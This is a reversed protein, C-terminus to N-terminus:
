RTLRELIQRAEAFYGKLRPIVSGAYGADLRKENMGLAALLEAAAARRAVPDTSGKTGIWLPATHAFTYEGMAPWATTTPGVVRAAVWGGAPVRVKGTYTAKGSAAPKAGSWVTKGNVVLAVSDIPVASAVSLTFPLERSSAIVDGPQMGDVTLQLMPGNTVFSRGAKLAAFYNPWNFPGDPRVYVRTAGVAMTRHFDAMVDTGGSPAVPFGANLLRYWLEASGVSNSWLCVIELLDINGHVGDAILAVPLVNMGAATFPTRTGSVPHVYYGAGGQARGFAIPEANTRDDRGYTEYGPGWVWPWFLTNTGLLGVHGLFHSRVEQAWTVLPGDGLSKWDFLPQDEFRNHLNALMPTAVDLDEGQLLPALDGPALAFQGGYNLHFHHDASYWGARQAEWLPQLALSATATEGPRVTVTASVEPTALGRVARVTVPGAPVDLTITGSSYFYVRGNQGDFRPMGENPVLPHGDGDVVSLRAASRGNGDAGRNTAPACAACRTEIVLRGMPVGADWARVPVERVPGGVTPVRYLHPLQKADSEAFYVWDGGNSFSPVIPRGGPRSVLAISPGPREVSMLRLEWGTPSPWTFALLKGDPSLAPRTQSVINGQLLVTEKGDALTRLRVQDGGGRSKSLYILGKGDPTLQPRLEAGAESTLRTRASTAFDWRWLDLDGGPAVNAYVLSAGDPTFVPDMAMGRDIETDRGSALDRVVVALTRSDDRVFALRRADPAWAPRSDVGAGSTLRRAIGTEPDLRWLWGRAAVVLEGSAAQAADFPGATLVPLEYGELYVHHGYGANKPYRNTWQATAVGPLLAVATVAIALRRSM